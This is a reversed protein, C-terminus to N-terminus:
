EKSVKEQFWEKMNTYGVYTHEKLIRLDMLVMLVVEGIMFLAIWSFVVAAYRAEEPTSYMLRKKRTAEPDFTRLRKALPLIDKPGNSAFTSKGYKSISVKLMMNNVYWSPLSKHQRKTTM